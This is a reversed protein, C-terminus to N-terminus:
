AEERALKVLDLGVFNPLFPFLYGTRQFGRSDVLYLALGHTIDNTTPQVTIGYAAWVHSLEARTGRLWHWSWPGAFGWEAAARRISTRTDGRPNVSVVVVTPRDAPAMRRLVTGLQHGTVPCQEACHSDLFTVLVPRGRLGALSVAAGDQNRLHFPSAAQEGSAWSVQGHLAPLAPGARDIKGYALHAVVGVGMGGVAGLVLLFALRRRAASL